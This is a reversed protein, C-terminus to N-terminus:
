HTVACQAAGVCETEIYSLQKGDPTWTLAQTLQGSLNPQSYIREVTLAKGSSAGSQQAGLPPAVVILILTALFIPLRSFRSLLHM